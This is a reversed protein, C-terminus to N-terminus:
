QELTNHLLHVTHKGTWVDHKCMLLYWSHPLRATVLSKAMRVQASEPWCVMGPCLFSSLQLECERDVSACPTLCKSRQGSEEINMSFLLWMRKISTTGAYCLQWLIVMEFLLPLQLGNSGIVWFVNLWQLYFFFFFFWYRIKWSNWYIPNDDETASKVEFIDLTNWLVFCCKM